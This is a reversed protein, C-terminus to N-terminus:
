VSEDSGHPRVELLRIRRSDANLIVFNLHGLTAKEGRTPLHGFTHTVLGGITDFEDGSFNTGFEENFDEIETMAKVLSTGDAQHRINLDEEHDHEDEIEGVIQELVDEITVLGAVDGYEDIVVAMHARTDRFEKLLQDLRKSEPVRRIPRAVEKIEFQELDQSILFPLLDKALLIGGIESPQENLVPFRSHASDIIRPLFEEPREDARIAIMQTRPIMVERVQMDSVALAGELIALTEQIFLGRENADRLEDILEPKNVAEGAIVSALRDFWSRTDLNAPRQGANM